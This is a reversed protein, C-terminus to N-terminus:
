LSPFLFINCIFNCHVKFSEIVTSIKYFVLFPDIIALEKQCLFILPHLSRRIPANIFSQRDRRRWIINGERHANTAMGDIAPHVGERNPGNYARPHVNNGQLHIKPGGGRSLPAIQEM